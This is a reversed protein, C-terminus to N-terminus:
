LRGVAECLRGKSRVKLMSVGCRVDAEGVEACVEGVEDEGDGEGEDEEFGEECM